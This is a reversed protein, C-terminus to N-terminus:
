VKDDLEYSEYYDTGEKGAPKVDPEGHFEFNLKSSAKWSYILGAGKKMNYKIEMGENPKLTVERADIKYSKPQAIFAGKVVPAGGDSAAVLTPSIVAAGENGPEAAAPKKSAQALDTLRLAAGTRLPDIGYEAPLVVTVLLVGAVLAAILTAAAIKGRSPIEFT